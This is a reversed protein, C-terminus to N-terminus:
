LPLRDGGHGGKTGGSEARRSVTFCGLARGKVDQRLVIAPPGGGRWIKASARDGPGEETFRVAVELRMVKEM